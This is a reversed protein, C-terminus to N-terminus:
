QWNAALVVDLQQRQDSTLNGEGGAPVGFAAMANVLNQVKSDILMEGDAATFQEVRYANGSYWNSITVKDSSGIVSVELNMGSKRFWLEEPSIDGFRLVDNYVTTTGSLVSETITDVGDGLNFVYTDTYASGILTDNGTGGALVNGSSYASVLLTDNGAGGYLTNSGTGGDITDNGAGGHIIDKGAWGNIADAGDTGTQVLGNATM